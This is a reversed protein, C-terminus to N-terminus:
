EDKPKIIFTASNNKNLYKKALDNIEKLTINAYDKDRQRCWDLKYPKEQSSSMVTNLWYGNQQKSKKLSALQPTIARELEDQTAGKEAIDAALQLIIPSFNKVNKSNGTCYAFIYSQNTFYDDSKAYAGPSYSQGLEERLKIRMRDSLIDALINLRRTRAIGEADLKETRWGILAVSTPVKSEFHLTKEIPLELTKLVHNEDQKLKSDDRKPLAGLTKIVQNKMINLDFDGIISVELSGNELYPTLWNKVDKTTLKLMAEKEPTYFRNDGSVMIKRMKEQGGLMSHKLQKYFKPLQAKFIREAEPRYGPDTIGAALLQLQLELDDPTTSGSLIFKNQDLSFGWSANKGALIRQLDIMSHKGLGGVNMVTSALTNLGPKDKPQSALGGKIEARMLIANADFDTKKLNIKIGNSLTLQHIGLDKIHKEETINGAKGWDSYAFALQKEVTPPEVPLTNAQEYANKLTEKTTTESIKPSTLSLHLDQNNWFQKFASHCQEASIESLAKKVINLDTEATSYVLKNHHHDVLATAIDPSRQSPASKVAAEYQNLLSAKVEKFESETFGFQKAKKFETVLVPLANKWDNGKVTVDVGGFELKRFYVSKYSSGSLIPSNEELSKKNFRKSLINSAIILPLKKIRNEVTDLEPTYRRVLALSLETSDLEKDTFLHTQFGKGKTIKGISPATAPKNQNKLQSFTQSIRKKAEEVEIDGVYVFCMNSPQYYTQYFDLFRQRKATKIVSELGIPFRKVLRSEPLLANFMKEQIRSQVSDRSVKEALIVGREEDIEKESMLAGGAFDQMVNFALNLTEEEINPLDFMYVTRDFSTYANAHAGFSIGLRQMKPILKSAEPYNKTGNFVMHEVFHALGRQDEAENLSGAGVYLRLSARKSPKGNKYILYRLGNPLKGAHIRPDKAIEQEPKATKEIPTKKIKKVAVKKVTTTKETIKEATKEKAPAIPATKTAENQTATQAHLTYAIVTSTVAMGYIFTISHKM